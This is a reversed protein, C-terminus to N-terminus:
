KINLLEWFNRKIKKKNKIKYGTNFEIVNHTDNKLYELNSIKNNITDKYNSRNQNIKNKNKGSIYQYFIYYSFFSIFLFIFLNVIRKIM